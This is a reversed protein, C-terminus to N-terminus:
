LGAYDCVIGISTALAAVALEARETVLAGESDLMGIGPTLMMMGAYIPPPEVGMATVARSISNTQAYLDELTFIPVGRKNPEWSRAYNVEIGGLQYSKTIILDNSYRPDHSLAATVIRHLADIPQRIREPTDRLM